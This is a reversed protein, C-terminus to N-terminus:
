AASVNDEEPLALLRVEAMELDPCVLMQALAELETGEAARDQVETSDACNIIGLARSWTAETTTLPFPFLNPEAASVSGHNANQVLKQCIELFPQVGNMKYCRHVFKQIKCSYNEACSTSNIFGLALKDETSM